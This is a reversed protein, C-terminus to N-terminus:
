YLMKSYEGSIILPNMSECIQFSSDFLKTHNKYLYQASGHIEVQMGTVQSASTWVKGFHMQGEESFIATWHM